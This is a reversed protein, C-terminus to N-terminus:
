LYENTNGVREATIEQSCEGWGVAHLDWAYTYDKSKLLFSNLCLCPKLSMESHKLCLQSM